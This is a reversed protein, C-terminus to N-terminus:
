SGFAEIMLRGSESLDEDTWVKDPSTGPKLAASTENKDCLSWGCWSVNHKKLLELWVKTENPFVGGSGDARSAGWESVFVPLGDALAKELRDQLDKGHTGAYFHLTYMLNEGAVPDAAPLHIDQSWTPSGILIVGQSYARIASVVQEAYPKVDREWSVNGNPENCIEYIVNPTHAYKEAMESFFAVAEELHDMPNGDSLIHWDLIVYMDNQIAAEVADTVAKKMAEPQSLYGGEGTYMALRFVNAGYAATNKMAQSSVFQGYWQLGHSSMGRLVVAEGKENCLQTGIVQLPGNDRVGGQIAEVPSSTEEPAPSPLEGPGPTGHPYAPTQADAQARARQILACAEARTLPSLPRFNGDQDGRAVGVSYAALTTDYYWGDLSSFDHIKASETDYDGRVTPLLARMLVKVALQRTIPEEYQERSPPLEDWDYWGAEMAARLQPAAWHFSPTSDYSLGTCRAVIIVFQASTIYNHPRFTGDEFGNVLGDRALANVDAEYWSGPEVDPFSAQAFAGAPLLLALGVLLAACRLLLSSKKM